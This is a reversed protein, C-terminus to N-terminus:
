VISFGTLKSDCLYLADPRAFGGGLWESFANKRDNNWHSLPVASQRWRPMSCRRLFRGPDCSEPVSFSAHMIRGPLLTFLGAIVLAGSVLGIMISRHQTVRHRHAAWVGLPIMMPTFISL